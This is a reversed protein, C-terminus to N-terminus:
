ATAEARGLFYGFQFRNRAGARGQADNVWRVTTRLSTHFRRAISYNDLGDLLAAVIARDREAENSALIYAVEAAAEFRAACRSCVPLVPKPTVRFQSMMVFGCAARHADGLHSVRANGRLSTVYTQM